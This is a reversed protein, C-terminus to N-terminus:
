GSLSPSCSFGLSLFLFALSFHHHPPPAPLPPQPHTARLLPSHSLFLSCLIFIGLMTKIQFLSAELLIFKLPASGFIIISIKKNQKTFSSCRKERSIHSHSLVLALLNFHHGEAGKSGCLVTASREKKGKGFAIPVSNHQSSLSTAAARWGLQIKQELLLKNVKILSFYQFQICSQTPPPCPYM